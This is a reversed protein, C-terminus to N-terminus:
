DANGRLDKRLLDIFQGISSSIRDSMEFINQIVKVDNEREIANDRRQIMESFDTGSKPNIGSTSNFVKSTFTHKGSLKINQRFEEKYKDLGDLIFEKKKKKIEEM